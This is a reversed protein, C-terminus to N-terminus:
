PHSLFYFMNTQTASNSDTFQYHGSGVPNETTTGIVPWSARPATLNNTAHVSFSLGSDNTVTLTLKGGSLGAGGLKPPV